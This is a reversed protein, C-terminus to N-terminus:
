ICLNSTHRFAIYFCNLRGKCLALVLALNDSCILFRGPPYNSLAYQVALLISRAELATINEDRSFGGCAALM